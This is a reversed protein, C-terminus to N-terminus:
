VSGGKFRGRGLSQEYVFSIPQADSAKRYIAVYDDMRYIRVSPNTSELRELTKIARFEEERIIWRKRAMM